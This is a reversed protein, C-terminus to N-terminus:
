APKAVPGSTRLTAVACVVLCAAGLATTWNAAALALITGSEPVVYGAAAAIGFLVCGVLNLAPIWWGPGGRAPWLGNRASARYAIVGSVLFCISGYVNPRWVLADYVPDSAQTQLARFTMVCFFLGGLLQAVAAWWAAGREPYALWCQLVSGATFLLAGVFFTLADIEPGVLQLYGPFPGTLFGAAGVALLVSMWRERM